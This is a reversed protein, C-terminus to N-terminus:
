SIKKFSELHIFYKLCGEKKPLIGEDFATGPVTAGRESGSVYKFVHM